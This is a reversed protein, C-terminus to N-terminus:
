LVKKGAQIGGPCYKIRDNGVVRQLLAKHNQRKLTGIGAANTVIMIELGLRQMVRVPLTVQGMSYGEYFHVRGQMVFVAQGELEGIM